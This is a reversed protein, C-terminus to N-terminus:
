SVDPESKAARPSEVKFGADELAKRQAPKLNTAEAEGDVFRLRIAGTVGGSYHPVPHTIKVPGGIHRAFASGTGVRRFAASLLTV